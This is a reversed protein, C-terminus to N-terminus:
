DADTLLTRILPKSENLNCVYNAGAEKLAQQSHNTPIGISIIDFEKAIRMDELGDAMFILLKPNTKKAVERFHERKSPYKDNTGLILDFYKPLSNLKVLYRIEEMTIGSSVFVFDFQSRVFQVIEKAHPLLRVKPYYNTKLVSSFTQEIVKYEHTSLKKHFQREYLYEFKYKRPTGQKEVWYNTAEQKNVGWRSQVLTGFAQSKQQEINIITGDYDFCFVRM